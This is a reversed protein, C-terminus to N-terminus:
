KDYFRIKNFLVAEEYLQERERNLFEVQRRSLVMKEIEPRAYDIPMPTGAFHKDTIQLIYTSLSDQIEIQSQRHMMDDLIDKEFPMYLLLQQATIWRDTFLEYGSAYRYAYKEINELDNENDLAMWQKLKKMTPAGNPVVVLMGKLISERLLFRDPHTTYIQEVVSDAVETPMRREVQKQEYAYVYLSRRYDEVLSEIREDQGDKAKEYVLIEKAWQRIYQSAARASDEPELGQTISDITSYYLFHGNLEAAAGAQHKRRFANCGTLVVIIGALTIINCITRRMTETHYLTCLYLYIEM